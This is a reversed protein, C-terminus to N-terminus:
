QAFIFRITVGARTTTIPYSQTTYPISQRRDYYFRLTVRDSVIYDISPSITVVKQGRTVITLDQALYTNTTIDDRLGVDVKVNLDNDLKKVGFVSFPLTLGRVRYGLGVVYEESRTESIQYDILSLAATRSKRYELRATMNNKLSADIGVLPGFSESISINPVQFFPVFNGSNSDIFSPYGLGYADQYYLASVFSSMSLTGTYADTVTFTNFIDKFGPLRNLGNYTLRWNPMPTYYKFPNSSINENKYDLLAVNTASKGSYAAIFAPILVDQSYRNYGKYYNPDTPDKVQSYPNNTGLRNSVINRNEIFQRFVGGGSTGGSQFLTKLGIYTMNFSGTEYPTNHTFGRTRDISTDKFLENHSKSFSKSLSIDIRLDNPIPEVQAAINLSQSHTQQFQANFIPDTSLRGAAAQRDLYDTNVQEGFAFGLGPQGNSTNVGFVKTSDMYGPLITGGSETYSITARKVMTLLQGVTREAGNLQPATAKRKKRAAKKDAKRKAKAAKAQAEEDARILRRVSDLQKDSMNATNIVVGKLNLTSPKANKDKKAPVPAPATAEPVAGTSSTSAPMGDNNGDIREVAPKGGPREMADAKKAPAAGPKSSNRPKPANAARLFRSKNYLQQFNLEGNVTKGQTNTVTNGLSRALQSAASWAYSTSYGLRLSMWDTIPLKSLPVTYNANATQTFLTNRGFSSVRDWLTDRKEKSDIRGYPEDVRSTNAAAYDVSLSRTLEWRLSYTRLWIFNKYYTAPIEYVGDGIVRVKTEDMTRNIDNRFSITSPLPNFNFDKILAWWKSRSKILSKFPEIPKSRVNYSYGIGLRHNTLEDGEILPNRKFQRNYAYSLDLNKASWLKPNKATKDPNGTFRVNNVNVSTISTFDQAAKKMSDRERGSPAAGLQDSYQVDLDYPNYQPNSISESHGIFFPIQVGWSRPLLKGVALNTNADWQYFNDRQRQQLKQDINGYGLTHMSGGVNINGLDALQASVKGTAAYGPKENLGTMRLEDFWVEACKGMGDDQQHQADKKPNLIGLMVTKADGVNPNGVIVINNGKGDVVTYPILPNGGAANRQTKAAVLDNFAIDVMNGEPWIEEAKTAGNATIRLPIQYEYYNNIFDSGIRIFASVDGDKLPSVNPMSEGHVFMRMREFQRLDVNVEKFAARADGDKLTCVQLSLSQENQQVTQGNSVSALQREVGPPIVYPIPERTGNEELSVSNVTFDTSLKEDDPINEGPNTLSFMYRRWQNRGLNLQGFRLSVTDQFGAMFLRVFRISRFDSISGVKQQYDRIPIKFQYWTEPETTGNPLKVGKATHTSVIYNSGVQMNPSLDVRYQYYDESENLTNDRDVDESEPITTAANSFNASADIVPSNGQPNNFFRYRDRIFTTAQEYSGGRFYRYDDAAPDSQANILAPAQPGFKNSLQVLYDSFFGNEDSNDLGDYGVDQIDRATPDNDFARTIQQQFRPVYGWITKDLKSPDKPFPIGNEFGKRSDKLVDESINGLNVYLSGNGAKTNNIFPDMVWFEIYEVNSAEFDSYEIPRTIGGWRKQPNTLSGDSNLGAVDFNYPGRERPLFTLDFTSLANNLPSPTKQPFVDQQQVLRIYHQNPDKKVYDPIGGIPEILTPEITYWALRARNVGYTLKNNDSAEPFLVNGFRDRAGVPTSALSWSAAPYKLDYSSRTGEFDDIYTSGGDGDLTNIQKPHGPRITAVEASATVFSPATTSYIPLKDVIRTLAPSESQYAGDLGIVTNRIPDEGFSVKQTFPRETLRMITGGLTLNQNAYYDFRAGMFNQQQFGFTANDEYSVNIPIGSSLIGTNIIKLRGLGYDIQYDANEVLRQGGASVTVSGQPINFGGLFIESSSASRYSGRMIYRNQQQFQRAVTKTSDYLVQYLYKREDQSNGGLAPRLDSGFPELVPFIVRGQQPIITVGEVYDFVGDPQPDNQFNLRDLNLLSLLPTGAAASTPLYRKEGGGPDQYLVNLRFDEKSVGMGGLAYVNKMMLKWLPLTPNLNQTKLLKLYMVKQNSTDPPLDEAFEGVQYTKGNTTYRYAVGVVDDPNVQTNLSIYGLQPNFTYESTNLKRATTRAFDIGQGGGNGPDPFLSQAVTTASGSMRAEPNQQLQDYLTNARNDPEQPKTPNVLNTRYPNREGLDLFCLVDRVGDTAGTRNTVWVEIKNITTQSQIVPFNKLAANYNNRFYHGLLYHKNEEYDDAKIGFTQTQAGGQITVSQRKSKQQSIAATVWLKGFQLQTKLGFLSQVGSVLTTRLPFSINGAEIKKIIEDEKGTYELKQVNQYDFTAKTNNSINLKLKDGVQALLNINMQMDFDFIGYKQARQVLMPNKINQWNGGLTVDVNGQPRVSITNNGFLRDFIGEKYMTPLEPKKSFMTLADLRRRWYNQEEEKASYKQYEDFTMYSPNRIFQDGVKESLYYRNDAPDYEINKNINAPDNLDMGTASRDKTPDGSLDKIPFRLAPSDSRAASRVAPSDPEPADDADDGAHGYGRAGVHALLGACVIFLLVKYGFYSKGKLTKPIPYRTASIPM